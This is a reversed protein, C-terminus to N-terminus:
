SGAADAGAAALRAAHRELFMDIILEVLWASVHRSNGDDAGYPPPYGPGLHPGIWRVIEFSPWYRVRPDASASLVEHCAVRLTSKSICDATIASALETTGSLPVPSVTLVIGRNHPALRQLAEIIRRINLANESVTTTRMTCHSNLYDRGLESESWLFAFEGTEDDFFCPAVGFTLIFIDSSAIAEALRTRMQPGFAAEIARAPASVPGHEVWELLHRNAFTTNVEEGIPEHHVGYGQAQLRRALNEAFCSGLTMLVHDPGIRLGPPEGELLYRRILHRLDSFRDNRPPWPRARRRERPVSAGARAVQLLAHAESLGPDIATARELAGGAEAHRGQRILAEGLYLPGQGSEPFSEVVRRSLSEMQAWDQLANACHISGILAKLVPRDIADPAFGALYESYHGLSAEFEGRERLQHALDYAGAREATKSGM